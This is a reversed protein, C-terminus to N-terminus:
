ISGRLERHDLFKQSLEEYGGDSVGVRSDGISLIFLRPM